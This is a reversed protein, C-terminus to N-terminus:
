IDLYTLKYVTTIDCTHSYGKYFRKQITMLIIPDMYMYTM